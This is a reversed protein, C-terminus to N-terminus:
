DKDRLDVRLRGIEMNLDAIQGTYHSLTESLMHTQSNAQPSPKNQLDIM